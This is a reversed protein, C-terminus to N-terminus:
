TISHDETHDEVVSGDEEIDHMFISGEQDFDSIDTPTSIPLM